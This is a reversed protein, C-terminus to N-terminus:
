LPNNPDKPPLPDGEKWKPKVPKKIPPPRRSPPKPHCAAPDTAAVLESLGAGPRLPLEKQAFARLEALEGMSREDCLLKAVAALNGAVDKHGPFPRVNQDLLRRAAETMVSVRRPSKALAPWMVPLLEFAPWGLELAGALAVDDAKKDQLMDEWDQEPHYSADAARAFYFLAHGHATPVDRWQRRSEALLEGSPRYVVARLVDAGIKWASPKSEFRRLFRLYDAEDRLSRHANYFVATFAPADSWKMMANALADEREPAAFAWRYFDGDSRGEHQLRLEGDHVEFRAPAVVADYVSAEKPHGDKIWADITSLGFAMADVRPFAFTAYRDRDGQPKRFDIIWLASAVKGREELSMRPLEVALWTTFDREATRFPSAPPAAEVEAAHHRYTDAFHSLESGVLEKRAAPLQAIMVLGRVRQANISGLDRHHSRSQWAIWAAHESAPLANPLVAYRGDQGRQFASMLPASVDGRALTLWRAEDVVVDIAKNAPDFVAYSHVREYVHPTTRKAAEAPAYRVVLREFSARAFALARPDQKKLADLDKAVSEVLRAIVDQAGDHEQPLLSGDLEIQISRGLIEALQENARRIRDVKPQFPVRDPGTRIVVVLTGGPANAPAAAPSAGCAVCLLLLPLVSALRM